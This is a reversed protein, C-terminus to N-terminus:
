FIKHDKKAKKTKNELSMKRRKTKETQEIYTQVIGSQIFVILVLTALIVICLLWNNALIAAFLLLLSIVKM